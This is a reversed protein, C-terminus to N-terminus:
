SPWLCVSHGTLECAVVNMRGSMSMGLHPVVGILHNISAPSFDVFTEVLLLSTSCHLTGILHKSQLILTFSVFLKFFLHLCM